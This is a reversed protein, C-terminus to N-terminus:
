QGSKPGSRQTTRMLEDAQRKEAEIQEPTRCVKRGINSGTTKEYKCIKKTGNSATQGEGGPPKGACASLLIVTSTALLISSLKM